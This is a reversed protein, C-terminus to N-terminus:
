RAAEITTGAEGRMAPSVDLLSAIVARGGARAFQLAAAVKPGMSGAKFEGAATHREMEEVTVHALAQQEPTRYAVFVAAVDTLILLVDAELDLALRAAALDKDIVAEVGHLSGDRHRVVPIGGGGNCVVLVGAALADAIAPRQVIEVPAPSPVVRRWGRGADERVVLGQEIALERARAEPYFPGVPKSPSSFAPDRRDVVVETLFTAVPVQLRLKVMHNHLSQQLMYGIQGQTEAGCVDMPMPAVLKAALDNQILINGVQPGNGHTLVVRWGDVVLRAIRRCSQDVNVLQEEFTGIQGPQLIANGGLAVVVTQPSKSM